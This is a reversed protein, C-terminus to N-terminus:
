GFSVLTGAYAMCARDGISADIAVPSISKEVPVSEGTLAAEIVHLNKVRLLRLDAPVKDGSELLVIDGPVLEAADVQYQVGDRLAKAHSALMSRVAELAKEAKGEQIFGILANILVVGFIVGTDVYDKLIFTIGGAAMLVYILPNHFQLAFRLWPGHRKFEPLSNRGYSALRKSVEDLSLGHHDAKMLSLVEDVSLSHPKINFNKQM